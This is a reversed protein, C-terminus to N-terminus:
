GSFVVNNLIVIKIVVENVYFMDFDDLYFLLLKFCNEIEFVCLEMESIMEVM